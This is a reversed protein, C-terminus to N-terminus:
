GRSIVKKLDERSAWMSSRSQFLHPSQKIGLLMDGDFVGLINKRM